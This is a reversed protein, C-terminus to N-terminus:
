AELHRSPALRTLLGGVPGVVVALAYALCLYYFVDPNGLNVGLITPPVVGNFGTFGNFLEYNQRALFSFGVAIALTIMITYIGQTRVSIAGILTAVLTGITM